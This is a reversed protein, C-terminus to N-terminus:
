GARRLRHNPVTETLLRQVRALHSADPSKGESTQTIEDSTSLEPIASGLSPKKSVAVVTAPLPNAPRGAYYEVGGITRDDLPLFSHGGNARISIYGLTRLKRLTSAKGDKVSGRLESAAKKGLDSPLVVEYGSSTRVTVTRIRSGSPTKESIM